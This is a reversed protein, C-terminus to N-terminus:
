KEEGHGDGGENIKKFEIDKAQFVQSNIMMTGEKSNVPARKFVLEDPNVKFDREGARWADISAQVHWIDHCVWTTFQATDQDYTRIRLSVEEGIHKERNPYHCLYFAQVELHLVSDLAYQIALKLPHVEWDTADGRPKICGSGIGDLLQCYRKLDKRTVVVTMKLMHETLYSISGFPYTIKKRPVGLAKLWGDERCDLVSLIREYQSVECNSGFFQYAAAPEWFVVERSHFLSLKDQKLLWREMDDFYKNAALKEYDDNNM